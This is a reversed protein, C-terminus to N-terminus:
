RTFKFLAQPALGIGDGLTLTLTKCSNAYSKPTAWNYQYYGGGLNQLGSKGAANERVKDQTTGASCSLSEVRVTVSSLTTVPTGSGDLLRWQLPITQGAKAVNLVNPNKVSGTFGVFTYSAPPPTTTAGYEYAGIDCPAVRYYGRQDTTATSGNWETCDTVADIAVSGTGLAHTQTPGDNDALLGLNLAASSVQTFGLECSDDTSLNGESSEDILAYCNTGSPSNAIISNKIRL